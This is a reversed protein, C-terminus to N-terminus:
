RKEKLAYSYFRFNNRGNDKAYYLAVDASKLLEEGLDGHEPFISIGISGSLPYSIENVAFSERFSKMINKAVKVANEKRMVAPLIVAFEDGGLYAVTDVKRVCKRLRIGVEKLLGEGVLHGNTHIVKKFHDIDVIMVALREKNRQARIVAMDLRDYFLARNPLGTISDHTLLYAMDRQLKTARDEWDKEKDVM